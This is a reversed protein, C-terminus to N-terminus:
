VDKVFNENKKKQIIKKHEKLFDSNRKQEISSTLNLCFFDNKNEFLLSLFLVIRIKGKTKKQLKKKTGYFNKKKIEAMCGVYPM